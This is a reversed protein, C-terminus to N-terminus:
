LNFLSQPLYPPTEQFDLTRSSAEVHGVVSGRKFLMETAM